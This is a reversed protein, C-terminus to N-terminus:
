IWVFVVGGGGAVVDGRSESTVPKAKSRMVGSIAPGVSGSVAGRFWEFFNVDLGSALGCLPSAM